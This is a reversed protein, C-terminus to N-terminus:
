RRATSERAQSPDVAGAFLGMSLQDVSDPALVGVSEDLGDFVSGGRDVVHVVDAM